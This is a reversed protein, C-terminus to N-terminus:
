SFAKPSPSTDPDYLGLNSFLRCDCRIAAAVFAPARIPKPCDIWDQPLPKKKGNPKAFSSAMYHPLKGVFVYKHTAQVRFSTQRLDHYRHWTAEALDETFIIQNGKRTTILGRGAENSPCIRVRDALLGTAQAMAGGPPDIDPEFDEAGEMRLQEGLRPFDSCKEM